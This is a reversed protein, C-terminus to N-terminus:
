AARRYENILGDVVPIRVIAADLDPPWEDAPDPPRQGLSQHPRRRNYHRFYQDLIRDLHRQGLIVLWDLAEQRVTQLLRECHANARPCRYPSLLVDAGEAQAVADFGTTFTSGRDHLLFRFDTDGDQLEWTLNRLQQTAWEATPHYTSAWWFVRRSNLELFVIVHLRRLLVTDVTMLDCAIVGKAHSRLFQSWSPGRRRRAPGLGNRKLVRRITTAAVRHGLKRLEGAIRLYGWRRNDRAMKLILDQIEAGVEPRGRRGARRGFGAWRRRVLERHWRLLTSPAILLRGKPLFGALAAFVMRDPDRLDPRKVTRRLVTVEHRLAIVEVQLEGIPRIRVVILSILVRLLWYIFALLM